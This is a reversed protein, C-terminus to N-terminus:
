NRGYGASDGSGGAEGLLAKLLSVSVVEMHALRNWVERMIPLIRSVSPSVRSSVYRVQDCLHAVELDRADTVDEFRTRWPLKLLPRLEGVLELRRTEIMPLLVGVQGAWILGEISAVEGRIALVASHVRRAKPPGARQGREWCLEGDLARAHWGRATAMERLAGMPSMTDNLSRSALLEIVEPDWQALSAAVAAAVRRELSSGEWSAFALHAFTVLDVDDLVDDWVRVRLSDQDAPLSARPQGATTVVFSVREEFPRNRSAQAWERLFACWQPWAPWEAQAEICVTVGGAPAGESVARRLADAVRECLDAVSGGRFSAGGDPLHDRAVVDTPQTAVRVDAFAVIERRRIIGAEEMRRGWRGDALPSPLAVVVSRGEAVDSRVRELFRQAGPLEWWNYM